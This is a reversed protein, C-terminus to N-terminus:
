TNKSKLLQNEKELDEIRREQHLSLEKVTKQLSKRDIESDVNMACDIDIHRNLRAIEAKYYIAMIDMVIEEQM